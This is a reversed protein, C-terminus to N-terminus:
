WKGNIRARSRAAIRATAADTLTRKMCLAITGYFRGELCEPTPHLIDDWYGLKSEWWGDPRLRAAHTWQKKADGYLAIKEFGIEPTRDMGCNTFRVSSYAAELHALSFGPSTNPWYEGPEWWSFLDGAAYAICNYSDAPHSHREYGAHVVGPLSAEIRRSGRIM